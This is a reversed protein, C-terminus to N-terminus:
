DNCARLVDISHLLAERPDHLEEFRKFDLELNFLGGYGVSKLAVCYARVPLDYGDLPFHTRLGNTAHIHTHIVRRLFADPPLSTIADPHHKKLYYLFHGMDWCIGVHKCGANEVTSLVLAISDGETKDPLLRNNELAIRAPYAHASIHADLRRLMAINDGVIPHITIVLEKHQLAPMLQALPDFVHNVANAEDTVTGHVTISLGANWVHQAASLVQEPPTNPRVSRLEISCVGHARLQELLQQIEGFPAGGDSLFSLPLSAGIM